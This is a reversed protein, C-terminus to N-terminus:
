LVMGSSKPITATDFLHHPSKGAVPMSKYDAIEGLWLSAM